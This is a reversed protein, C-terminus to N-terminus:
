DRMSDRYRTYIMVAMALLALIGAYIELKLNLHFYIADLLFLIKYGPTRHAGHGEWIDRLSLGHQYYDRIVDIFHWQDNTVVSRAAYSALLIVAIFLLFLGAYVIRNDRFNLYVTKILMNPIFSFDKKNGVLKSSALRSRM